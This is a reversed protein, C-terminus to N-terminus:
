ALDLIVYPPTLCKMNTSTVNHDLFQKVDEMTSTMSVLLVLLHKVNARIQKSADPALTYNQPREVLKLDGMTAGPVPEPADGQDPQDGDRGAFHRELICPVASAEDELELQSMVRRSKLHYFGILDDPQARAVRQLSGSRGTQTRPWSSSLMSALALSWLATLRWLTATGRDRSRPHLGPPPWSCFSGVSGRSFPAYYGRIQFPQDSRGTRGSLRQVQDIAIGVLALRDVALPWLPSRAGVAQRRSRVCRHAWRRGRLLLLTFTAM